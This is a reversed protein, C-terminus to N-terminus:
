IQSKRNPFPGILAEEAAKMPSRRALRRSRCSLSQESYVPLGREQPQAPAGRPPVRGVPNFTMQATM